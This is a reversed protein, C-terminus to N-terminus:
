AVADENEVYMEEEENESVDGGGDNKEDRSQM